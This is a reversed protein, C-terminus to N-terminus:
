AIEGATGIVNNFLGQLKGAIVYLTDLGNKTRRNGKRTSYNKGGLIQSGQSGYEPLAEALLVMNRLSTELTSQGTGLNATLGLKVLGQHQLFDNLIAQRMKSSGAVMGKTAAYQEITEQM